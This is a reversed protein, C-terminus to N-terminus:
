NFIKDLEERAFDADSWPTKKGGAEMLYPDTGKGTLMVVDGPRARKIAEKIAEHRDIIVDYHKEIGTAMGCVIQDPDEDYPDDNTLIIEACHDSAVKGMAPRKWKDRGGGTAGLVCILRKDSFVSYAAKLSDATHAYDVIVEFNQRDKNHSAYVKQMRGAVGDFKALADKIASVSIGQSQAYAVAGLLNYLNFKGALGTNIKEGHWTFSIKNETLEYPEADSLSFKIKHSVNFALFKGAETDDANVVLVKDKKPSHALARAISLKAGVYNEYCGHSEIHEPSLNTFILADLNIFANRYQKAGESSLELVAYDCHADVAQRLVKQMMGRGPTTMKLLNRRSKNGVKFRLTSVIATKYGGSELLASVLETTTTKGKTGTIAIVKIRRSPFGYWVASLFAAALHFAAQVRPYYRDPIFKKIFLIM